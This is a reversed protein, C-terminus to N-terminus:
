VIVRKCSPMFRKIEEENYGIQISKKNVIIPRKLVQPNTTIFEIIQNITMERLNINFKKSRESIIDSTGNDSKELIEIVEKSTIGQNTLSIETYPIANEDLFLKSKRCSGCSPSTYIKIKYQMTRKRHLENIRDYRVKLKMFDKLTNQYEPSRKDLTNLIKELSRYDQELRNKM